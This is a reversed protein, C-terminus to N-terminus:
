CINEALDGIRAFPSSGERLQGWLFRFRARRGIGGRGCITQRLMERAAVTINYVKGM